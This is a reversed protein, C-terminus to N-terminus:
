LVPFLLVSSRFFETSVNMQTGGSVVVRRRTQLREKRQKKISPPGVIAPCLRRCIGMPVSKILRKTKAVEQLKLRQYKVNPGM